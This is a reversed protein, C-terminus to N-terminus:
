SYDTEVKKNNQNGRKLKAMEKYAETRLDIDQIEYENLKPLRFRNRTQNIEKLLNEKAVSTKVLLSDVYDKDNPLMKEMHKIIEENLNWQALKSLMNANISSIRTAIEQYKPNSKVFTNIVDELTGKWFWTVDSADGPNWAQVASIFEQWKDSNLIWELEQLQWIILAYDNEKEFHEKPLVSNELFWVMAAPDWSRSAVWLNGFFNENLEVWATRALLYIDSLLGTKDDTFPNVWYWLLAADEASVNMKYLERATSYINELEAVNDKLKTPVLNYLVQRYALPTEWDNSIIEIAHNVWDDAILDSGRTNTVWLTIWNEKAYKDLYDDRLSQGEASNPDVRRIIPNGDMGSGVEINYIDDPVDITSPDVTEVDSGYSSKTKRYTWYTDYNYGSDTKAIFKAFELPDLDAIKTNVTVWLAKAANAARKEPDNWDEKPSYKSFYELITDGYYLSKPNTQNFIVKEVLADFGDEPTAFIAFWRDDHGIVNWFDWDKINGPNNNKLWAGTMWTWEYQKVEEIARYYWSGNEWQSLQYYKWDDGKVVNGKSMQYQQYYKNWAAQDEQNAIQRLKLNYEKEKWAEDLEKQYRNYAADYNYQLEKLKDNIEVTRNAIYARVLYDPTDWKFIQNAESKLNKLRTELKNIDATIAAMTWEASKADQNSSLTTDIDSLIAAVEETSSGYEEAMTKKNWEIQENKSDVEWSVYGTWGNAIDNIAMQWRIQKEIQKVEAAKEPYYTELDRWTQDWYPSTWAVKSAAISASDMNVLFSLKNARSRAIDDEVSMVDSNTNITTKKDPTDKGTIVWGNNALDWKLKEVGSNDVDWGQTNNNGQNQAAYEWLRKWISEVTNVRDAETSNNWGNQSALYSIVDERSTLWENYLASAIQDNRRALYGASDSNAYQWAMWFQYSPDLNNLRANPDYNVNSNKVGEWTYKENMGWAQGQNKASSDDWYQNFNLDANKLGQTNNSNNSAPVNSPTNSPTNPTTPTVEPNTSIGPVETEGPESIAMPGGEAGPESHPNDEIWSNVDPYIIEKVAWKPASVDPVIQHVWNHTDVNPDVLIPSKQTEAKQDLKKVAM